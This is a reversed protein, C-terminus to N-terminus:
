SIQVRVLCMLSIPTVRLRSFFKQSPKCLILADIGAPDVSKHVKSLAEAFAEAFLGRCDRGKFMGSESMGAGVVAVGRGLRRKKM